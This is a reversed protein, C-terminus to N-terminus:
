VTPNGKDAGTRLQNNVACPFGRFNNRTRKNEGHAFGSPLLEIGQTWRERVIEAAEAPLIEAAPEEEAKEQICKELADAESIEPEEELIM